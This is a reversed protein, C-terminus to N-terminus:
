QAKVASAFSEPTGSFKVGEDNVPGLTGDKVTFRGTPGGIVRYHGPEYETLFLVSHEGVQFLPDDSIQHLVKDVLGGTQHVSVTSGAGAVRHGRDDLVKDVDFTFDTSPVGKADQTQRVVRAFRGEVVLDAHDKLEALSHYEVAWSADMNVVEPASANARAPSSASCGALAATAAIAAAASIGTVAKLATTRSTM